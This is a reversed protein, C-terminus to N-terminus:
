SEQGGGVWLKPSKGLFFRNKKQLRGQGMTCQTLLDKHAQRGTDTLFLSNSGVHLRRPTIPGPQSGNAQDLQDFLNGLKIKKGEANFNPFFSIIDSICTMKREM